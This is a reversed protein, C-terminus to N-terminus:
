KGNSGDRAPSPQLLIRGAEDALFDDATDFLRDPGATRIRRTATEYRMPGGFGDLLDNDGVIRRAVLDELKSPPRGMATSYETIGSAVFKIKELTTKYGRAYLREASEGRGLRSLLAHVLAPLRRSSGNNAPPNPLYLLLAIVLTLLAASAGLLRRRRSRARAVGAAAVVTGSGAAEESRWERVPREPPGMRAKVMQAMMAAKLDSLMEDYTQYRHNPDKAMAREVIEGIDTPILPNLLHPPTLPSKVHQMMVAAPTEGDFPQRGTLLHYFTAGLSYIDSRYDAPRGMAVEPAMYKPTGMVMGAVSKYADERIVKALGFDVVKLNQDRNVMLNGPKVDRHIINHNEAAQLGAAAQVILDLQQWFDLEVKNRIMDMVSPGDVFEMVIYPRGDPTVGAEHIRAVNPHDLAPIARAEYEFRALTEPARVFERSLLKIAVTQSGDASVAKVVESTAGRALHAVVTYSGIRSPTLEPVDTM